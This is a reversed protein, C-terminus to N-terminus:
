FKHKLFNQICVHVIIISSVNNYHSEAQNISYVHVPINNKPPNKKLNREVRSIQLHCIKSQLSRLHIEPIFNNGILIACIYYIIYYASKKKLKSTNWNLLWLFFHVGSDKLRKFIQNYNNVNLMLFIDM